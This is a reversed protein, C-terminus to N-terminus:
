QLIFLPGENERDTVNHFIAVRTFEFQSVVCFHDPMLGRQVFVVPWGNKFALLASSVSSLVVQLLSVPYM